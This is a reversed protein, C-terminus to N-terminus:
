LKAVLVVSCFATEAVVADWASFTSARLWDEAECCIAVSAGAVAAECMGLAFGSSWNGEECTVVTTFGTSCGDVDCFVMSTDGVVGAEWTLFVFDSLEGEAVTVVEFSEDGVATGPGSNETRM